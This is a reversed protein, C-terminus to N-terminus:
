TTKKVKMPQWSKQEFPMKCLLGVLLIFLLLIDSQLLIYTLPGPSKEM